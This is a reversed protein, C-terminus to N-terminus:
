RRWHKGKVTEAGWREMARKLLFSYACQIDSREGYGACRLEGFSDRVDAEGRRVWLEHNGPTFFVHAWKSLLLVLTKRVVETDDAIDGAVILLDEKYDTDSLSSCRHPLTTKPPLSPHLWVRPLMLQINLPLPSKGPVQGVRM